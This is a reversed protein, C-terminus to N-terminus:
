LGLGAAVVIGFVALGFQSRGAANISTPTNGHHTVSSSADHTPSSEDHHASTTTANHYYSATHHSSNYYGESSSSSSHYAPLAATTATPAYSGGYSETSYDDSYDGSPGDDNNTYGQATALGVLLASLLFSAKLQM